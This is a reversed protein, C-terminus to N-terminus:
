HLGIFNVNTGVYYTLSYKVLLSGPTLVRLDLAVRVGYGSM